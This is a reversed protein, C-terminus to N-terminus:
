QAKEQSPEDAAPTNWASHLLRHTLPDGILVVLLDALTTLLSESAHRADHPAHAAIDARLTALLEDPQRAAAPSLWAFSSRTLHLSRAYLARAAQAGVLSTLEAHLLSLSLTTADAIANSDAGEPVRDALARQITEKQM